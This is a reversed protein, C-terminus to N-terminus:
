ENGIISPLVRKSIRPEMTAVDMHSVKLHRSLDSTRFFGRSCHHCVYPTHNTHQKLLHFELMMATPFTKSCEGISCKFKSANEHKFGMHNSLSRKSAFCQDCLKCMFPKEGTHKRMHAELDPFTKSCISCDGSKESHMRRIHVLLNGKLSFTMGCYSCINHKENTHTQMHTNLANKTKVSKNCLQCTFKKENSHVYMHRRLHSKDTFKKLCITCAFPKEGTHMRKHRIMSAIQRFAKSCYPCTYPREDTHVRLHTIIAYKTFFSNGCTECIFTRERKTHHTTIHRKLSGKSSFMSSCSDCAFPKEGTHTRMHSDMASRCLAKIGCIGCRIPGSKHRLKRRDIKVKGDKRIKSDDYSDCSIETNETFFLDFSDQDDHETNHQPESKIEPEFEVKVDIKIDSLNASRLTRDSIECKRVFEYTTALEAACRVCIRDPLGDGETVDVNVCRMMQLAMNTSYQDDANQTDITDFLSETATKDLCIRCIKNVM